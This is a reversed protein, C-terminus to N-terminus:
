KLYQKLRGFNSLSQKLMDHEKSVLVMATNDREQLAVLYNKLIQKEEDTSPMSILQALADYQQSLLASLNDFNNNKINELIINSLHNILDMIPKACDAFTSM